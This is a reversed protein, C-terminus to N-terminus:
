LKLLLFSFFIVKISINDSGPSVAPPTTVNHKLHQASPLRRRPAKARSATLHSLLGGEGREVEDLDENLGTTGVNGNNNSVNNSDSVLRKISSMLPNSSKKDIANGSLTSTSSLSLNKAELSKRVNATEKKKGAHNKANSKISASTQNTTGDTHEKNKTTIIEVFNDPFLGVKNKLKGTWWGKDSSDKSLLTIVDGETITLEDVNAASYPYLVRCYEVKERTKDTEDVIEPTSVFNSPFVGIVGNLEGRWWGEEVEGLYVISEDPVLKLEDNNVPDYSFLVRCLKRGSGNRLTVEGAADNKMTASKESGISNKTSTGQTELM